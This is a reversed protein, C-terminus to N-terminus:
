DRVVLRFGLKKYLGPAATKLDKDFKQISDKRGMNYYQIKALILMEFAAAEIWDADQQYGCVALAGTRRLFAKLRRKDTDMVSCAGFHIVRKACRDEMTEALRSMGMWNGESLYIGSEEVKGGEGKEAGGGHFAFYLLPHTDYTRQLYRNLHHELEGITAVTRHQYPVKLGKMVELMRLMPEVSSRDKQGYWQDAELCFVGKIQDKRRAKGSTNAM